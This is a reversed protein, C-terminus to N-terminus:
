KFGETLTGMRITLRTEERKAEGSMIRAMHLLRHKSLLPLSVQLPVALSLPLSLILLRSLLM